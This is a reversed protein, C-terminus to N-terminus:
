REEMQWVALGFSPLTVTPNTITEQNTLNTLQWNGPRVRDPQLRVTTTSAQARNNLLVIFLKKQDPSLATVVEVNPNDPVAMGKRIILNAPQGYISGPAFGYTQHPGVKPTVFGRPFRVKGGSRLEAEAMLYDTIWGIQWWAHHPYPGAGRNMANWYYSAVSTKDDVFAHRGVAAARALDVFLREGTLGHMRVFMGAHSALQIPGARNASGFIGGHEFSLGAQAIEWDERQVGKVNKVDRNPIPHTYISATYIKACTVAADRYRTDGTLDFLDLLAQASQGTAFDPAYRADGCVGLFHGTQVANKLFWDAGRRAAQLYKGDNLLRYAVVLGYFTPRADPVDRFLPQREVKDYAVEWSGDKRQWGLLRDAGLRLRERLRANKPQAANREFLLLNGIDLMTYYTLAIPEVIDGWEEVFKKRKALYYQGAVAGSFFPDATEQQALKFNLAYPLVNRELLSDGTARALMWMAGYDANKMADKQSGVVGGLYSQAGIQTGEYDEVNWLSTQPDTLYRHMRQVRDTLSQRNQRLALGDTLRFVDYAAHNLATFWDGDTLSIRVTYRVSDGANLRSGSEGLVPYYLTPSLQGRRNRHSLGLRWDEHTIRDTAWPDRGLAPDPMVSLTLGRKTSIIPCLTSACRERYVVPRDPVGQGYAYARVFDRQVANGQFYGPVTAWTVDGEAVPALTPSASSFYGPKKAVITQTILVDTPYAPDLSWEARLTAVDTEHRFRVGSQGAPAATTPLFHYATGATNLAVATTNQRWQERQYPYNPGPFEAGTNDRFTEAATDAPKEAAFLLTLEGSPNPLKVAGKPGQHAVTQLRWGASTQTWSLTIRGNTLTLPKTALQAPATVASATVLVVGGLWCQGIWGIVINRIM